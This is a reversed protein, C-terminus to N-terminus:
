RRRSLYNETEIIANSEIESLKDSLKEYNFTNDNIKIKYDPYSSLMAMAIEATTYKALPSLDKYGMNTNNYNITTGGICYNLINDLFADISDKTLHGNNKYSDATINNRLNCFGAIEVYEYTYKEFLDELTLPYENGSMTGGEVVKRIEATNTTCLRKINNLVGVLEEETATGEQVKRADGIFDAYERSGTILEVNNIFEHNYNNDLPIDSHSIVRYDEFRVKEKSKDRNLFYIITAGIASAGLVGAVLGSIFRLKIKKEKKRESRRHRESTSEMESTIEEKEETVISDTKEEEDRKDKTIVVKEFHSKDELLENISGFQLAYAIIADKVLDDGLIQETTGDKYTIEAYEYKFDDSNYFARIKEYEKTM